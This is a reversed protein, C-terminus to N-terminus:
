AAELVKLSLHRERGLVELEARWDSVNRIDHIFQLDGLLKLNHTGLLKKIEPFESMLQSVSMREMEKVYLEDSILCGMACTRGEAGRYRCLIGIGHFVVESRAGQKLLHTAVKDFIEQKKM